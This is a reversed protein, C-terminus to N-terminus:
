GGATSKVLAEIEAVQHEELPYMADIRCGRITDHGTRMHNKDSRVDAHRIQNRRLDRCTTRFQVLTKEQGSTYLIYKDTLYSWSDHDRTRIKSVSELEGVAVYDAITMEEDSQSDQAFAPAGVVLIMLGAILRTTMKGDGTM